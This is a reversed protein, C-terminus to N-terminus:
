NIGKVADFYYKWAAIELTFLKEPNNKFINEIEAVKMWKVNRVEAKQAVPKGNKVRCRFIFGIWPRGNELQQVCCFPKFGFSADNSKPTYIKTRFDDIFELVELGTEEKVERRLADYVLEYPKDLVGAPFELTGSYVPDNDPKWRTQILVEVEGQVEREIIAGVFPIALSYINTASTKRGVYRILSHIGKASDKYTEGKDDLLITEFGSLFNKISKPSFYRKNKDEIFFYDEEIQKGQRYEPDTVSNNLMIVLGDPKLVRYIERMVEKTTRTDFYHISLHAYVVDFVEDGFPLKKTMDVALIEVLNKLKQTLKEKNESLATQSIDTSTIMFGNEAFFRSDQGQGAGLELVKANKPFYKIVETAFINPKNIWDQKKYYEHLNNWEKNKKM